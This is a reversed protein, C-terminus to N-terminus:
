DDQDMAQMCVFLAHSIHKEVMKISIGCHSAIQPYSLGNARSLMFVQRCRPTLSEIALCVRRYSREGALVREMPASEDAIALEDVDDHQHYHRVRQQRDLDHAINIAIRHLLAVPSQIETSQEYKMMRVYTEQAIDQADEPVRIRPVLWAVLASHHQRIIEQISLPKDSTAMDDTTGGVAMQTIGSAQQSLLLSRALEFISKMVLFITLYFMM